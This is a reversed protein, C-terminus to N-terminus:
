LNYKDADFEIDTKFLTSKWGRTVEDTEVDKVDVRMYPNKLFIDEALKYIKLIEYKHGQKIKVSFVDNIAMVIDGVDYDLHQGTTGPTNYLEYTKLHRM